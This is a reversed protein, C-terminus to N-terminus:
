LGAMVAVADWQRVIGLLHESGTAEPDYAVILERLERLACYGFPM